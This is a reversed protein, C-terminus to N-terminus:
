KFFSNQSGRHKNLTEVRGVKGLVFIRAEIYNRGKVVQNAKLQCDSSRSFVYAM